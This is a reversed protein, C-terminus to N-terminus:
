VIKNTNEGDNNNHPEGTNATCRCTNYRLAGFFISNRFCTMMLKVNGCKTTKKEPEGM